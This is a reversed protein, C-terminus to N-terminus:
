PDQKRLDIAGLRSLGLFRPAVAPKELLAEQAM